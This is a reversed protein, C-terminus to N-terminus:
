DFVLVERKSDDIKNLPLTYEVTATPFDICIKEVFSRIFSKHEALLGFQLTDQLDGVYPKIEEESYQPIEKENM